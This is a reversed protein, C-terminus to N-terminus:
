GRAWEVVCANHLHEGTSTATFPAGPPIDQRCQACAGPGLDHGNQHTEHTQHTPEGTVEFVTM